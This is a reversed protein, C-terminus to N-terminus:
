LYNGYHYVWPLPVDMIKRWGEMIDVVIVKGTPSLMMTTGGLM